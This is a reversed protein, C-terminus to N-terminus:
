ATRSAKRIRSLGLAAIGLLLAAAGGPLPVAAIQTSAIDAIRVHVESSPHISDYFFRQEAQESTCINPFGFSNTSVCPTMFDSIKSTPDAAITPILNSLDVEVVGFGESRLAKIQDKLGANFAAADPAITPFNFLMVDNIGLAKLSRVGDGIAATAALGTGPAGNTNLLDNGGFWLAALPRDGFFQTQASLSGIQQPLDPSLDSNPIARAGGFAANGVPKGEADFTAAVLDAWVPGNSFRGDFYIPAPPITDGSFAYANGPDSLSDGLVWFSSFPGTVTASWASASSLILATAAAIVRKM